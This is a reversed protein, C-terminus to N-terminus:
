SALDRNCVVLRSSWKANKHPCQWASAVSCVLAIRCGVTNQSVFCAAHMKQETDRAQFM